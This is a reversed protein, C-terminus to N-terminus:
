RSGGEKGEPSSNDAYWTNLDELAQRCRRQWAKAQRYRQAFLAHCIFLAAAIYVLYVPIGIRVFRAIFAGSVTDTASRGIVYLLYLAFLCLFAGTAACWSLIMQITMYDRRRLRCIAREGHVAQAECLAAHNMRETKEQDIMGSREQARGCVTVAPGYETQGNDVTRECYLVPRM